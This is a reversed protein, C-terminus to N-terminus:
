LSRFVFVSTLYKCIFLVCILCMMSDSVNMRRPEDDLAYRFSILYEGTTPVDDVEWEIYMTENDYQNGYICQQQECRADVYLGGSASSTNNRM